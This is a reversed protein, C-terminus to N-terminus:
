HDTVVSSSGKLNPNTFAKNRLCYVDVFFWTGQPDRKSNRGKDMEHAGIFRLEVMRLPRCRCVCGVNMM